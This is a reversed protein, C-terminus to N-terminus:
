VFQPALGFIFSTAPATQTAVATGTQVLGMTTIGGGAASVAVPPNFTSVVGTGSTVSLANQGTFTSGAVVVFPKIGAPPTSPTATCIGSISVLFTPEGVPINSLNTTSVVIQGSATCVVSAAALLTLVNLGVYSREGDYAM